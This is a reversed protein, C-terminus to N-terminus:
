TERIVVKGARAVVVDAVTVTVAADEAPAVGVLDAIAGAMVARRVAGKAISTRNTPPKM